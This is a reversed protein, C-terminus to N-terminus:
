KRKLFILIAGATSFIAAIGSALSWYKSYKELKKTEKFIDYTTRLKKSESTTEGLDKRNFNVKGKTSQGVHESSQKSQETSISM